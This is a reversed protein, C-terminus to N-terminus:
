FLKRGSRGFRKKRFFPAKAAAAEARGKGKNQYARITEDLQKFREEEKEDSVRLLYEVEKMVRDTVNESVAGSVDETIERSIRAMNAEVAQGIIHNMIEQFRVMKEEANLLQAPEPDGAPVLSVGSTGGGASEEAPSGEPPEAEGDYEVRLEQVAEGDKGCPRDPSGAQGGRAAQGAGGSRLIQGDAAENRGAQGVEDRGERREAESQREAGGAAKEKTLEARAHNEKWAAKMEEEMLDETITINEMAGSMKNLANRIAKLQYGRDKLDRIQCFLRIHYDTYYRHGMDNRPIALELEDEWYRLVHTEVGVQRAADSILYRAEAM